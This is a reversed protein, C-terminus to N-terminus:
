SFFSMRTFFLDVPDSPFIESSSSIPSSIRHALPFKQAIAGRESRARMLKQLKSSREGECITRANRRMVNLV